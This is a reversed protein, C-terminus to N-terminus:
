VHKCSNNSLKKQKTKTKKQLTQSKIPTSSWNHKPTAQRCVRFASDTTPLSTLWGQVPANAAPHFQPTSMSHLDPGKLGHESGKIKEEALSGSDRM